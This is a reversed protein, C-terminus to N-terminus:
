LLRIPEKCSAYFHRGMGKLNTETKGRRVSGAWVHCVFVAVEGRGKMM